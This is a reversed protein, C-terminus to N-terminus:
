MIILSVDILLIQVVFVACNLVVLATGIANRDFHAEDGDKDMILILGGFSTLVLAFSSVFSSWDDAKNVYPAMRVTVLTFAQMISVAVILQAPSGPAVVCLAGTMFVKTIMVVTEFWYYENEYMEYLSGLKYRVAQHLPSAKDFLHVRNRWLLVFVALPVGIVYLLLAAIVLGM